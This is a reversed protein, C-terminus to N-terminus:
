KIYIIPGLLVLELCVYKVTVSAQLSDTKLLFFIVMLSGRVCDIMARCETGPISKHEGRHTDPCPVLSLSLSLSILTAAMVHTVSGRIIKEGSHLDTETYTHIACCSSIFDDSPQEAKTQPRGVDQNSFTWKLM